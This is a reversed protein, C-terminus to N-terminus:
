YVYGLDGSPQMTLHICYILQFLKESDLCAWSPSAPSCGTVTLVELRSIVRYRVARVLRMRRKPIAESVVYM